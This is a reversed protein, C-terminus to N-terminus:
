TSSRAAARASGAHVAAARRDADDARRRAGPARRLPEVLKGARPAVLMITLTMPLFILGPTLPSLGLVQQLYLSSLFWM